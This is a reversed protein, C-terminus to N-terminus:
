ASPSGSMGPAGPQASTGRRLTELLGACGVECLDLAADFGREDGWYPDPVDQGVFGPAYDLLRKLKHLQAPPAAAQMDALVEGDLALLLDFRELGVAAFARSRSPKPIRYGRRLLAAVARDDPPQARRAVRTGASEVHLRLAPEVGAARAREDLTSV